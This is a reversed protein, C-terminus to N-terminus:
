QSAAVSVSTISMTAANITIEELQNPTKRKTIDVLAMM